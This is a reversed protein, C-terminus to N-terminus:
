PPLYCVAPSAPTTEGVDDGEGDGGDDDDLRRNGGRKDIFFGSKMELQSGEVFSSPNEADNPEFGGSTAEARRPAGDPESRARKVSVRVQGSGTGERRREEEFTVLEKKVTGGVHM